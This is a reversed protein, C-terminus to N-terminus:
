PTQSYILAYNFHPGFISHGSASHDYIKKFHRKATTEAWYAIQRGRRRGQLKIRDKYPEQFVVSYVPDHPATQYRSMCKLELKHLMDSPRGPYGAQHWVTHNTIRSFYAAKVGFVRRLYGFYFGNLRKIQPTTLTFADLGYLLTPIFVSLFRLKAKRPLRSNWILRLKKYAEVTLARRHYFATEFPKNWSVLSGLYKLSDATPVQARDKFLLSQPGFRPDILLETNTSNLFMGYLAAEDELASLIKQM